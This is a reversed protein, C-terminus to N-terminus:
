GNGDPGDPAPNRRALVLGAAGAVASLALPLWIPLALGRGGTLYVIGYGALYAVNVIIAQNFLMMGLARPGRQGGTAPAVARLATALAAVALIVWIPHAALGALLPGALLAGYALRAFPPNQM